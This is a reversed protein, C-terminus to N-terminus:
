SWWSVKLRYTSVSALISHVKSLKLFCLNKERIVFIYLQTINTEFVTCWAFLPLGRYFTQLDLNKTLKLVLSKTTGTYILFNVSGFRLISNIILHKTTCKHDWHNSSTCTCRKIFKLVLHKATCSNNLFLSLLLSM